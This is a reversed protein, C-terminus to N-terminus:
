NAGSTVDAGQSEFLRRKGLITSGHKVGSVRLLTAIKDEETLKNNHELKLLTIQLSVDHPDEDERLTLEGLRQRQGAKSMTDKPCFKKDLMEM